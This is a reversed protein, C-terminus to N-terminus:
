SADGHNHSLGAQELLLDLLVAAGAAVHEPEAWEDPHHSLGGRCPIFIMVSPALPAMQRADHGAASLVDLAPYGYRAASRWIATRLGEDFTNSPADVLRKIHLGCPHVEEAAITELRLGLRDLMANDPHRLDVRFVARSPVVSPANPQIELRGITFKVANDVVMEQQMRVAMRAFAQLADQRREMPETGAHAERGSIVFEYTKKGQIGSVVGIVAGASELVDAQEIHPEIYAHVPFGLPRREIEPFAAHVNALAEAVSVGTADKVAMVEELTRKGAFLESGMMGPAFRSGEENMWAVVTIPREPVLGAEAIATVAELAALTGFAGDFLGGTPQSDAHSGAVVPSLHPFKGQLTLFLNGAPDTSPTLGAEAGWAIIRRWSLIEEASLAQRNVGKEPLAGDRGLEMLRSWLREPSISALATM